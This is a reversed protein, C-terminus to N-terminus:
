RENGAFSHVSGMLNPFNQVHDTALYHQRSLLPPFRVVEPSFAAGAHTVFREFQEVVGEFVGSRGYVGAVGLPILLGAAVLEDRYGRYAATIPDDAICM